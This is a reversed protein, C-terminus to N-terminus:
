ETVSSCLWLAGGIITGQGTSHRLHSVLTLGHHVM